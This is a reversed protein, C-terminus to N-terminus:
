KNETQRQEFYIIKTHLVYTYAQAKANSLHSMQDQHPETLNRLSASPLVTSFNVASIYMQEASNQYYQLLLHQVM